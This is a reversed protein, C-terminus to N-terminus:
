ICMTTLLLSTNREYKKADMGFEKV